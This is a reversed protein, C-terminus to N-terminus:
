DVYQRHWLELTLLAGIRVAHNAGAAQEDVLGRVYAPEFYGRDLTRPDLLVREAWPRLGNRFWADYDKYPRRGRSALWGLGCRRLHWDALQRGQVLLDRACATLPRGTGALPIQALKPASRILAARALFREFLFGPPVTLAFDVVDNDCFPLRVITRTRAAEVGNLTMRPVRQTLDFFLRQNAMQSAGSSELGNRYTQCLAGKVQSQFSPTFFRAQAAQDYNVVGQGAHVGLHLRHRTDADCDAWMQRKLAFGLLADGMFGKFLVDPCQTRAELPALVHLNVINGLGDTARVAKESLELLWDPKLEVFSHRTGLASAVESAVRADDCGPIGFTLTEVDRSADGMLGLLLRSDLGGSLLMGTRRGDAYQRRVAQSLLQVLQEVYDSEPRPDYHEPYRPTWYRRVSVDGDRCTLVSGQPLLRVADVLTRDDLVHDFVVFQSIAVRDVRRDVEPDSVVARVGSAFTLGGHKTRAFYVPFLGLRDNFLVLTRNPVHWIAAAFAGNLREVVPEGFREYLRLLLGAQGVSAPVPQDEEGLLRQVAEVDYLEGEMVLALTRDRNWVIEAGSGFSPLGVRGLGVGAEGYAARVFSGTPELADSM